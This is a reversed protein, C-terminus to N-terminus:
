RGWLTKVETVVLRTRLMDRNSGAVSNKSGQWILETKGRLGPFINHIDLYELFRTDIIDLLHPGDREHVRFEIHIVLFQSLVEHVEGVPIASDGGFLIAAVRGVLGNNNGEIFRM